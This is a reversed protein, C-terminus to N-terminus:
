GWQYDSTQERNDTLRNKTSNVLKKFFKLNWMYTIEYLIHRETQSIEATGNYYLRFDPLTLGGARNKKRSLPQSNPITQTEM